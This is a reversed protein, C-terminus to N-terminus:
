LRNFIAPSSRLGFPSVLDFYYQNDFYYGLLHWHSPHVPILCFAHKLDMKAMLAGIGFKSIIRITDDVSCFNLNFETRSIHNNGSDDLPRSLDTILRARGIEKPRVSLSPVVFNLFPPSSFLGM